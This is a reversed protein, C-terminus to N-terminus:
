AQRCGMMIWGLVWGFILVLLPVAIMALFTNRTEAASMRLHAVGKVFDKTANSAVTSNPLRNVPDVEITGDRMGKLVTSNVVDMTTNAPFQIEMKGAPFVVVAAGRWYTFAPGLDDLEVVSLAIVWLASGLIWIRFFGRKWKM